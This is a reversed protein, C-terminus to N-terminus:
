PYRLNDAPLADGAATSFTMTGEWYLKGISGGSSGIFPLSQGAGNIIRYELVDRGGCFTSGSQLFVIAQIGVSNTTVNYSSFENVCGRPPYQEIIGGTAVITTLGTPSYFGSATISAFGPKPQDIIIPTPGIQIPPGFGDPSSPDPCRVEAYVSKDVDNVVLTYTSTAQAAIVKGGPVTPDLRYFVTQGSECITPATLTDGVQPSNINGSSTFNPGAGPDNGGISDGPNSVPPDGLGAEGFGGFSAGYDPFTGPTFTEAPVSTNNFSNIDCTIASAGTGIVLGGGVAANVEQAVVSAKNADVPFHTLDLRVEGALSKGIRDV